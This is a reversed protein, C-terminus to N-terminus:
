HPHMVMGIFLASLFTFIYAQLFAILIELLNLAVAGFVSIPAVGYWLWTNATAAIFGVIVALVLHGAFMNALLRVALITHKICLGFVEIVLIMPKLFIALILPLEMHPIQGKFFGVPGLKLMGAGVATCFAIGALAATVALAGTPSGMWPFLGILNCFLIFFFATWLYPLFRDADHHGIAPRAVEDRIFVVMIELLNGLRGRLPRGGAMRWGLPVFILIMLLAVVLELIMFKTITFQYGLIPPPQPIHYELGFPLEFVKADRVHEAAKGVDLM